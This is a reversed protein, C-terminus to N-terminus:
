KQSEIITLANLIVSKALSVMDASEKGRLDEAVSLCEEVVELLDGLRLLALYYNPQNGSLEDSPLFEDPQCSLLKM